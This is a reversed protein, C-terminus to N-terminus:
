FETSTQLRIERISIKDQEDFEELLRNKFAKSDLIDFVNKMDQFDKHKPLQAYFNKGLLFEGSLHGDQYLKCNYIVRSFFFPEGQINYHIEINFKQVVNAM